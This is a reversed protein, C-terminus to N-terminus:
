YYQSILQFMEHNQSFKAMDMADQGDRNKLHPDMGKDLLFQVLEIESGKVYYLFQDLHKEIKWVAGRQILRDIIETQKYWWALDVISNGYRDILNLDVKLELVANVFDVRQSSVALSLLSNGKDDLFNAFAYLSSVKTIHTIAEDYRKLLAEIFGLHFYYDDGDELFTINDSALTLERQKIYGKVRALYAAQHQDMAILQNFIEESSPDLVLLKALYQAEKTWDFLLQLIETNSPNLEHAKSLYNLAIDQNLNQYFKALSLYAKFYEPMMKRAAILESASANPDNLTKEVDIWTQALDVRGYLTKEGCMVRADDPTRSTVGYQKFVGDTNIFLPGGSDGQCTDRGKDGATFENEFIELVTVDAIKKVGSNRDEDKGFGIIQAKKALSAQMEESTALEFYQDLEIKEKLTLLAFDHQSNDGTYFPHVMVQSLEYAKVTKADGEVENERTVVNFLRFSELDSSICHAATLVVNESILTGTCYVSGLGEDRKSRINVVQQWKGAEVVEGGYVNVSVTGTSRFEFKQPKPGCSAIFLILMLATSKLMPM